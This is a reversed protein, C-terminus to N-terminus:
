KMEDERDPIFFIAQTLKSSLLLLLKNVYYTCIDYVPSSM